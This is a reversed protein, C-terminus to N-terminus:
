MSGQNKLDWMYVSGDHSGAALQSGDPSFALCAIATRSDDDTLNFMTSSGDDLNWVEVKDYGAAV